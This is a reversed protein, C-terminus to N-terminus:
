QNDEFVRAINIEGGFLSKYGGKRNCVQQMKMLSQKDGFIFRDAYSLQFLNYALVSRETLSIINNQPMDKSITPSNPDVIRLIIANNGSLPICIDNFHEIVGQLPNDSIILKLDGSVSAFYWNYCETLNHATELLPKVGLLQYLQYEKATINAGDIKDKPIGMQACAEIVQQQVRDMTDRYKKSRYALDHIFILLKQLHEKDYLLDSNQCIDDLIQSADAESRSLMKEVLQGDDLSLANDVEDPHISRMEAIINEIATNQTDYFYRQAAYNRPQQRSLITDAKVNWVSFRKGDPAFRRLYMQPVFHQNTVKNSM